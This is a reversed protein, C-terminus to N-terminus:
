PGDSGHCSSNDTKTGNEHKLKWPFQIAVANTSRGFTNQNPNISIDFADFNTIGMADRAKLIQNNVTIEGEILYIFV